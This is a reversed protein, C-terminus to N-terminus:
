APQRPTRDMEDGRSVDSPFARIEGPMMRVFSPAANANSSPFIFRREM